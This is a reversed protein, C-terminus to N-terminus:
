RGLVRRAEAEPDGRGRRFLTYVNTREIKDGKKMANLPGLTELEIYKLPDPNTYVEVSSGKDPYEAGPVRLSEIQLTSRPGVWVLAGGHSGIKYASKADRTLSIRGNRMRLSPPQSKSLLVYGPSSPKEPANVFIGDPEKLQTVVWVAITAPEGSIREFSTTIKMIPKDPDLSVRRLVRIGFESDDPSLMVVDAGEIRAQWPLGDFARPPKWAARKTFKPWDGEPAPWAKDGGFNIWAEAQPDAPQGLLEQNEWFVGEDGSFGFQMVRGIAPVVVAEVEGNRLVLSDPWGRYAQKNVSVKRSASFSTAGGSGTVQALLRFFGRKRDSSIGWNVPVSQYGEDFGEGKMRFDFYGWSAYESIAALMNNRPKDFDFHDDENFLIPKPYYGPVQKTRRVMEGIRDPDAVGNGHLLLFDSALVVNEKPITGGGYSTGVYLRRGSHTKERVRQILEHVREPKLIAHEYRVNCENNIEILVHRYGREFLWQTAHDTARIVAAEDQLRQDQGFYFYGLMVVMGLDDAKNLIRELRALYDSRLSGDAEIASNHWPQSSSYGMPSGGQLNITFSLLGHRRWEPLAAIFERTNREPDWRRTDPYAWQKVTEPNRDDFIGQVMRSNLLLGEIRRGNWTRGEYTPRGNIFFQDGVISVATKRRPERASPSREATVANLHLMSVVCLAAHWRHFLRTTMAKMAIVRAGYRSGVAPAFHFSDGSDAKVPSSLLPLAM